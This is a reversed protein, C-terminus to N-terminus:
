TVSVARGKVASIRWFLVLFPSYVFSPITKWYEIIWQDRQLITHQFRDTGDMLDSQLCYCQRVTLSNYQWLTLSTRSDYHLVQDVTLIDRQWLTLRDSQWVTFSETHWVILNESQWVTRSYLRRSNIPSRWFTLIDIHWVTLTDYQWHTMSDSQIVTMSYFKWVNM